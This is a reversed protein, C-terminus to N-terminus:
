GQCECLEHLSHGGGPFKQLHAHLPGPIRFINKLIVLCTSGTLHFLESNMLTQVFLELSFGNIKQWNYPRWDLCGQHGLLRGGPATRQTKRGSACTPLQSPHLQITRLLKPWLGANHHAGWFFVTLFTVRYDRNEPHKKTTWIFIEVEFLPSSLYICFLM